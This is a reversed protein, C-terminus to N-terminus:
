QSRSPAAPTIKRYDAPIRFVADPLAGYTVEVAELLTTAPTAARLLVGDETLCATVTQGAADETQWNTCALGAVTATDARTFRGQPLVGPLTQAPMETEIVSHDAERVTAISHHSLDIVAFLGPSPPDIRLHGSTVGWRLRQPLLGRPGSVAYVVDVDRTPQVRPTDSASAPGAILLLLLLRRMM